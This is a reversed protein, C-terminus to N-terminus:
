GATAYKLETQPEIPLFFERDNAPVQTNTKLRELFGDDELKAYHPNTDDSFGFDSLEEAKEKVLEVSLIRNLKRAYRVMTKLSLNRNGALLSSVYAASVGLTKAVDSQNLRDAHMIEHIKVSFEHQARSEWYEELQEIETFLDTVHNM